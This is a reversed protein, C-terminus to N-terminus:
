FIAAMLVSYLSVNKADGLCVLPLPVSRGEQRVPVASAQRPSAETSDGTAVCIPSGHAVRLGLGWCNM